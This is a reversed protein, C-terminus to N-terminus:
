LAELVHGAITSLQENTLNVGSPLYLGSAALHDTVPLRRSIPSILKQSHLGRFFPRTEIAFSKLHEAMRIPDKVLIGYMWFVNRAYSKEVPLTIRPDNLLSNYMAAIRRKNAIFEDIREIQAVGIAAQMNTMRFNHGIGTHLFRDNGVGFCLNRLSKLKDNMEHSRTLVM